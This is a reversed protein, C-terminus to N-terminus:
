VTRVLRSAPEHDATRWESVCLDRTEIDTLQTLLTRSDAHADINTDNITHKRRSEYNVELSDIQTADRDESM